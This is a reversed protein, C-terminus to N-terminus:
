SCPRQPGLYQSLSPSFIEHIVTLPAGDHWFVYDRGWFPGAVGFAAELRACPGYTVTRIDRYLETRGKSLSAWIPQSADALYHRALPANWWSAAYVLNHAGGAASRWRDVSGGGGDAAVSPPTASSDQLFVQRQLLPLGLDAVEPPVDLLPGDVDAM